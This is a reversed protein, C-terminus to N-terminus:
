LIEKKWIGSVARDIGQLDKAVDIETFGAQTMIERVAQAQGIGVEFCLLGGETLASAIGFSIARYFELGDAGGDLAMRPEYARVSRDLGALDATPIYPPNCICGDIPPLNVRALDLADMEAVQVRNSVGNLFINEEALAMAEQSLEGLIVHADRRLAVSIGLCGTGTCLDLIRQGPKRPLRKLFHDLVAQSDDRPILGRPDTLFTRGDFEWQGILYALPEGQGYRRLLDELKERDVCGEKAEYASRTMGGAACVLERAILRLSSPAEKGALANGVLGAAESVSIVM